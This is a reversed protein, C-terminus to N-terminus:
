EYYDGRKVRVTYDNKANLAREKELKPLKDQKKRFANTIIIKQGEFFFCLFRDPQPKFAFIQDGENRFKTVNNIVGSDGMRKFLKLVSIKEQQDLQNFYDFASSKENANYYWEITYAEGDYAVYDLYAKM